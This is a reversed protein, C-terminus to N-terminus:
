DGERTGRKDPKNENKDTMTGRTDRAVHGKRRRRQTQEYVDLTREWTTEELKENRPAETDFIVLKDQYFVVHPYEVGEVKGSERPFKSYATKDLLLPSKVDLKREGNEGKLVFDYGGSNEKKLKWGRKEEMVVKFLDEAFYGWKTNGAKKLEWFYNKLDQVTHIHKPDMNIIGARVRQMLISTRECPQATEFPTPRGTAYPPLRGKSTYQGEAPDLISGTDNQLWWHIIRNADLAQFPQYDLYGKPYPLERIFYYRAESAVYSYGSLPSAANGPLHEPKLLDPTLYAQILKILAETPINM